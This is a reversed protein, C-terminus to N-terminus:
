QRDLKEIVAAVDIAESGIIEINTATAKRAIRQNMAFVTTIALAGMIAIIILGQIVSSGMKNKIRNM